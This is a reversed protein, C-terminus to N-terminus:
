VQAPTPTDYQNRFCYPLRGKELNRNIKQRACKPCGQGSLHLAARQNFDGHMRCTINVNNLCDIYVVNDYGYRGAHKVSAKEIFQTQSLKAAM